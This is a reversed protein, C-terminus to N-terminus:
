ATSLPAALIGPPTCRPSRGRAVKWATDENPYKNYQSNGVQPAGVIQLIPEVVQTGWVGSDRMFPWNLQVAAQPLDRAANIDNQTGYNPQQNFDTAAYAVATNHLTAKWVDGLPGVYPRDWNLVM